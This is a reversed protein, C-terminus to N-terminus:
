SLRSMKTLLPILELTNATNSLLKSVGAAVKKGDIVAGSAPVIRPLGSPIGPGIRLSEKIVANLFPMEELVSLKPERGPVLDPWYERLEDKLKKVMDPRKLLYFTGIMIVNATTDGGGFM